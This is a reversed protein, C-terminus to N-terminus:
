PLAIVDTKALIQMTTWQRSQSAKNPCAAVCVGCGQCLAEVVEAYLGDDELVRAGFPCVKVCQGCAACLQPEVQVIFAPAVLQGQALLVAARM